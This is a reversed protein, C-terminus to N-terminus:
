AGGAVVHETVRDIWVDAAGAIVAIVEEVSHTHTPAGAGPACWQEMVCLATSGRSASVHIRTEVGPRWTVRPEDEVGSSLPRVMHPSQRIAPGAEVSIRGGSEKSAARSPR